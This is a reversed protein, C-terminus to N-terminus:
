LEFSKLSVVLPIMLTRKMNKPRFAITKKYFKVIRKEYENYQKRFHYFKNRYIQM